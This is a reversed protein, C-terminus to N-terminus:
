GAVCREIDALSKMELVNYEAGIEAAISEFGPLPDHRDSMGDNDHLHAVVIRDDFADVFDTYEIGTVKAHGVDLTVGLYDSDVDVDRIFSALRDPTASHRCQTEKERQNEICLPIGIDDAHEACERITTVAQSRAHARVREPYRKRASGAHVVVAGAGAAIARDLTEKIRETTARRLGENINGPNADLHPVHFTFTFGYEEGLERLRRPTPPDPHTDLYGQRIEVHSCGLGDLFQIFEEISEDFRLDLAAGVNM